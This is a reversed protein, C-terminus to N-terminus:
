CRKALWLAYDEKRARVSRGFSFIKIGGVAPSLQLLEYVRLKSVHLHDAIHKATLIDPFEDLSM